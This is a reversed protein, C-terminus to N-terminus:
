LEDLYARQEETRDAPPVRLVEAVKLGGAQLRVIPEPGVRSPLVGMHGPSPPCAPWVEVGAEAAARRDLDGWYQTVVTDPWAGGLARLEDATLVSGGTPTCAVVVADPPPDEGTVDLTAVSHVDAGADRLGREMHELFPNDCVLLVRARYAAVGADALQLVAMSGLYGFVDIAPHRENTGAVAIGREALAALDVDQRGADIEWAEFMLSLVADGRMAGVRGADIPRLHGSNTVVDAAAFLEDTLETTISIRDAVGRRTALDMTQAIVDEVSGHRTAATVAHVQRAGAMAALVPTVAYPGTAAETLVTTGELDLQLDDVARAALAALRSPSRGPAAHAM